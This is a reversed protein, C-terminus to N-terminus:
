CMVSPLDSLPVFESGIRSKVSWRQGDFLYNYDTKGLCGFVEALTRGEFAETGDEGRDRGYYICHGAVPTAFSHGDPKECSEALVSLDGGQALKLAALPTGYHQMLIKGARAPMGDRNLHIATFVTRKSIRNASKVIILAPTCM